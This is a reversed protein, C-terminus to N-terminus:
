QVAFFRRQVGKFHDSFTFKECFVSLKLLFFVKASNKVIKCPHIGRKEQVDKDFFLKGELSDVMKGLICWAVPAHIREVM